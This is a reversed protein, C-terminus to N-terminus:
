AVAVNLNSAGTQVFAAIVEGIPTVFFIDNGRRELQIPTSQDEAQLVLRLKPNTDTTPKETTNENRNVTDVRGKAPVDRNAKM